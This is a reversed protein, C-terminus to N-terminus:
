VPLFSSWVAWSRDVASTWWRLPTPPRSARGTPRDDVVTGCDPCRVRRRDATTRLRWDGDLASEHGCEPCFLVAKRDPPMDCVEDPSDSPAPSM